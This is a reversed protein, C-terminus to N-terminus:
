SHLIRDASESSKRRSKREIPTLIAVIEGAEKIIETLRRAPLVEADRMMRLWFYPERAESRAINVRRAFERKSCAAGVEELNSGIATGSRAIQRALVQGAVDRPLARVPKLVRVGFRYTRDYIDPRDTM